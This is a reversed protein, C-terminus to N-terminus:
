RGAEGHIKSGSSLRSTQYHLLFTRLTHVLLFPPGPLFFRRQRVVRLTPWKYIKCPEELEGEQNNVMHCWTGTMTEYLSLFSILQRHSRPPDSSKSDGCMGCWGHCSKTRMRRSTRCLRTRGWTIVDCRRLRRELYLLSFMRGRYCGSDTDSDPLWGCFSM